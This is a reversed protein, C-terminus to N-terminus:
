RVESSQERQADLVDIAELLIGFNPSGLGSTPDWGPSASFGTDCCAKETCKNNGEVIDNFAKGNTMKYIKYLLPNAFGVPPRGKEQRHANILTILGAFVPAAASTGSITNTRNQVIILYNEAVLSVDPYARGDANFYKSFPM